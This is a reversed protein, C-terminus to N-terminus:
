YLSSGIHYPGAIVKIGYKDKIHCYINTPVLLPIHKDYENFFLVAISDEHVTWSQGKRKNGKIKINNFSKLEDLGEKDTTWKYELGDGTADVTIWTVKGYPAYFTKPEPGKLRLKQKIIAERSYIPEGNDVIVKCRIRNHESGEKVRFGLYSNNSDVFDIDKWTYYPYEKFQWQYKINKPTSSNQKVDVTFTAGGGQIADVVDEPGEIKIIQAKLIADKILNYHDITIYKLLNEIASEAPLPFVEVIVPVTEVSHANPSHLVCRYNYSLSELAIFSLESTIAGSYIKSDAPISIWEGDKEYQWEYAIPSDGWADVSIEVKEGEWPQLDNTIYYDIENNPYVRVADTYIGNGNEDEVYCIYDQELRTNLLIDRSIVKVKLTPTNSGIFNDGDEVIDVFETTTKPTRSTIVSEKWQYTLGKGEAEISLEVHEGVKAAAWIAQKTIKPLDDEFDVSLESVVDESVSNKGGVIIVKKVRQEIFQKTEQDLAKPNTLLIPASNAKAISIASLADPYNTGDVLVITESTFQVGPYTYSALKLATEYRNEGAIREGVYGPLPLSSTGGLVLKKDADVVPLENKQSLALSFEEAAVLTGAALADPFGLGDAYITDKKLGLGRAKEIIKLSTEFRDNGSLRETECINKVENEVDQSITNIGGLIYVKKANLRGLEAKVGEDLKKATTLLIPAPLIVSLQGGALADAFNEGSALVVNDSTVFERKSVEIATEYRNTGSVREITITAGFAVVPLVVSIIMIFALLLGIYRKKM